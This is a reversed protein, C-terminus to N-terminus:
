KLCKPETKVQVLFCLREQKAQFLHVKLIKIGSLPSMQLLSIETEGLRVSLFYGHLCLLGHAIATPQLFCVLPAEPPGLTESVFLDWASTVDSKAIKPLRAHQSEHPRLSDSM